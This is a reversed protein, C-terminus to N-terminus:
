HLNALIANTSMSYTLKAAIFAKGIDESRDLAKEPDRPDNSKDYWRGVKGQPDRMNVNLGKFNNRKIEELVDLIDYVKGNVVLFVPADVAGNVGQLNNAIATVAGAATIIEKAQIYANNDKLKSTWGYMLAKRLDLDNLNAQALVRRMPLSDALKISHGNEGGVTPTTNKVSFQLTGSMGNETTYIASSDTKYQIKKINRGYYQKGLDSSIEIKDKGGVGTVINTLEGITSVGSNVILSILVEQLDGGINNILGAAKTVLQDRKSKNLTHNGQRASVAQQLLENLTRLSRIDKNLDAQVFKNNYAATVRAALQQYTPDDESMNQKLASLILGDFGTKCFKEYDSMLIKLSDVFSDFLRLDNVVQQHYSSSKNALQQFSLGEIAESVNNVVQGASDLFLNGTKAGSTRLLQMAQQIGENSLISEVNSGISVLDVMGNLDPNNLSRNVNYKEVENEFIAKAEYRAYVEWPSYNTNNYPVYDSRKYLYENGEQPM